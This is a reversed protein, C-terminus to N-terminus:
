GNTGEPALAAHAIEAARGYMTWGDTEKATFSAGIIERLAAELRATKAQEAQLAARDDFWDPNLYEQCRPCTDDREEGEQRPDPM